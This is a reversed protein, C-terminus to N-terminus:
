FTAKIEVHANLSSAHKMYNLILSVLTLSVNNGMVM